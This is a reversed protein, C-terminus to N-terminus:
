WGRRAPARRRAPIAACDSGRRMSLRPPRQRGPAGRGRRRRRRASESLTVNERTALLLRGNPLGERAPPGPREGLSHRRADTPAADARDRPGSPQRRLADALRSRPVSAPAEHGTRRPTEPIPRRRLTRRLSRRSGAACPTSASSTAVQSGARRAAVNFGTSARRYSYVLM